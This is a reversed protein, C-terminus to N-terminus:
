ADKGIGCRLTGVREKRIIRVITPKPNRGNIMPILEIPPLELPVEKQQFVMGFENFILLVGWISLENKATDGNPYKVAKYDGFWNTGAAYWGGADRSVTFKGGVPITGIHEKLHDFVVTFPPHQDGYKGLFYDKWTHGPSVLPCNPSGSYVYSHAVNTAGVFLACVGLLTRTTFIL